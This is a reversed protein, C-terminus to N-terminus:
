CVVDMPSLLQTSPAISVFRTVLASVYQVGILSAGSRAIALLNGAPQNDATHILGLYVDHGLASKAVGYLASRHTTDSRSVGYYHDGGVCASAADPLAGAEPTDPAKADAAVADASM